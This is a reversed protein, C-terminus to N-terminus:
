ALIEVESLLHVVRDRLAPQPGLRQDFRAEIADRPELRHQIAENAHSRIGRALLGPRRIPGDLGPLRDPRQMAYRKRVLVHEVTGALDAGAARFDAGIEDGIMRRGHERAEIRRAADLKATQVHSFERQARGTVVLVIAAALDKSDRNCWRRSTM